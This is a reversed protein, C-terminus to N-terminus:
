KYIEEFGPSSDHIQWLSCSEVSVHPNYIINKEKGARAKLKSNRSSMKYILVPQLRRKALIDNCLVCIKGNLIEEAFTDLDATKQPNPWM